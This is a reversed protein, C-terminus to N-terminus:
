PASPLSLSQPTLIGAASLLLFVAAREDREAEALSVEANLLEQEADLVDLTTRAGVERERKVGELALRNADVQAKAAVITQRTAVLRNFASEVAARVRRRATEVDAEAADALAKAERVRSLNLGGTFLPVSARLGYYFQNAGTVFASQEETHTYSAAASVTPALAGRAISIQRRAADATERAAVLEPSAGTATELAEDLSAPTDPMEPRPELAGPASGVVQQYVARSSALSSQAISLSARARALRAEAQALDTRTSEGVKLRAAAEDRQRVLVNVQNANADFIAADRVVDFYATAATQLVSQEAVAYRAGGARVRAAAARIANLNRLGTFLPQQAEVTAAIPDLTSSVRRAAGPSGLASANFTSTDDLRGVSGRAEVQPLAGALAQPRAESVARLRAREASLAPNGAHAEALADRLSQAEASTSLLIVAGLAWRSM